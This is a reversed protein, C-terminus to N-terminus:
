CQNVLMVEQCDVELAEGRGKVHMLSFPQAVAINHPQSTEYFTLVGVRETTLLTNYM